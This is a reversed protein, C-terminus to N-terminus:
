AECEGCISCSRSSDQRSRPGTPQSRGTVTGIYEVTVPAAISLRAPHPTSTRCDATSQPTRPPSRAKSPCPIRTKMSTLACGTSVTPMSSVMSAAPALSHHQARQAAAFAPHASDQGGEALM